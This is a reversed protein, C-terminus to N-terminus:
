IKKTNNIMKLMKQRLKFFDMRCINIHMGARWENSIKKRKKNLEPQDPM